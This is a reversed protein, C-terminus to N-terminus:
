LCAIAFVMAAQKTTQIQLALETWRNWMANEVSENFRDKNGSWELMCVNSHLSHQESATSGFEWVVNGGPAQACGGAIADRLEECLNTCLLLLLMFHTSYATMPAEVAEITKWLDTAVYSGVQTVPMNLTIGRPIIAHPNQACLRMKEFLGEYIDVLRYYCSLFLFITAQDASPVTFRKVTDIFQRTLKFTQDIAIAKPGFASPPAMQLISLLNAHHDVLKNNLDALDFPSGSVLADSPSSTAHNVQQNPFFSSNGLSGAHFIDCNPIDYPMEQLLVSPRM